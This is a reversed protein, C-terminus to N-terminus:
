LKEKVEKLSPIKEFLRILLIAVIGCVVGQLINLPVNVFSVAFGYMIWEFVFYGLAIIVSCICVGIIQRILTPKAYVILSFTLAVIGKTILTIPSYIVYGLFLDALASGVAGVILSYKRKLLYCALLIFADGLHVYGVVALPIKVFMTTVVILATLLASIVISRM